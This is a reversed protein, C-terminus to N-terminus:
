RLGTSSPWASGLTGRLKRRPTSEKSRFWLPIRTSFQSAGRTDLSPGGSMLRVRQRTELSPEGSMSNSEVQVEQINASSEKVDEVLQELDNWITDAPLEMKSLDFNVLM